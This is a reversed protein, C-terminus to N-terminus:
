APGNPDSQTESLGNTTMVMVVAQWTPCLGGSSGGAAGAAHRRVAAMVPVMGRM